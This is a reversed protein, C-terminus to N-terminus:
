WKKSVGAEARGTITIGTTNKAASDPASPEGDIGCATLMAATAFAIAYKM